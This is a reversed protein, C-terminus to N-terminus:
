VGEGDDVIHGDISTEFTKTTILYERKMLEGLNDM